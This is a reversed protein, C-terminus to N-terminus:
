KAKRTESRVQLTMRASLALDVDSPDQTLTAKTTWAVAASTNGDAWACTPYTVTVSLKKQSLVECSVTIGGDTFDKRPVAVTVGDAEGAGKLVGERAEDTNKFRGYMGSLVMTGKTADGNLAYTGVVGVTDKADWAGDAEQEIKQGETDSLDDALEFRGDILTKPLTLVFDAEPFGSGSQSGVTLVLAMFVAVSVGLIGGVIGLVFGIGRKKPPPAFVVPPADWGYPQQQGYPPQGYPQQGYAPQGYPQQPSPPTPQPPGFQQPPYPQQPNQQPYPQQPHPQQPYPQQPNPPQQPPPPM